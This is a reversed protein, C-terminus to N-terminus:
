IRRSQFPFSMHVNEKICEGLGFTGNIIAGNSDTVEDITVSATIAFYYFVKSINSPKKIKKNNRKELMSGEDSIESKQLILIIFEILIFLRGGNKQWLFDGFWDFCHWSLM